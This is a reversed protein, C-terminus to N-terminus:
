PLTFEVRSSIPHNASRLEAVATFRGAVVPPTWSERYTITEGAGLLRTQLAQTYMRGASFRWMEHGASDLVVFDHTMATPFELELRRDSTNTVHLALEVGQEVRVALSSAIPKGDTNQVREQPARSGGQAGQPHPGCAFAIAGTVLITVAVRSRPHM